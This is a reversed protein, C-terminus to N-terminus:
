KAAKRARSSALAMRAMHARIAARARREREAPPLDEPIGDYFRARFAGRAPETGEKSDQKSWREYAATQARLSRQQPTLAM